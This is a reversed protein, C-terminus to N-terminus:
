ISVGKSKLWNIHHIPLDVQVREPLDFNYKLRALYLDEGQKWTSDNKMNIADKKHGDPQTYHLHPFKIRLTITRGLIASVHSMENDSFLHKYGPYYIYGFRDYYKRDMIPLTILWPQLGDETKVVYDEKGELAELLLTDWEEPCDFDDSVVIFLNGQAVKAAQNIAEIASQNDCELIKCDEFRKYYLELQPDSTDISIIYEIKSKDVAKSLWNNCTQYAQDVRLRSPHIITITPKM